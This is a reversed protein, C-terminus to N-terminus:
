IFVGSKVIINLFYVIYGTIIMSLVTKILGQKEMDIAIIGTIINGIPEVVAINSINVVGIFKYLILRIIFSLIIAVGFKRRGYLILYNSLINIAIFTLISLVITALIKDPNGLHIAIYGPVIVGGPSLGTLEYYIISVLCGLILIKYM